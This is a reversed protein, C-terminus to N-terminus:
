ALASRGIQAWALPPEVEPQDTKYLGIGILGRLLVEGIRFLEGFAVLDEPELRVGVRDIWLETSGDPQPRFQVGCLGAADPRELLGLLADFQERRLHSALSDWRWHITGHECIGLWRETSQEHLMQIEQCM